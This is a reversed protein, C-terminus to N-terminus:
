PAMRLIVAMCAVQGYRGELIAVSNNMVNVRMSIDNGFVFTIVDGGDNIFFENGSASDEPFLSNPWYFGSGGTPYAPKLEGGPYVITKGFGSVAGGATAGLIIMPIMNTLHTNKM